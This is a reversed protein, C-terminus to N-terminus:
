ERFQYSFIILNKGPLCYDCQGNPVNSINQMFIQSEWPDCITNTDAESPFYWPMCPTTMNLLTATANRAFRLSCELVCNSRSYTKHTKVMETEDKFYCNRDVPKLSRIDEQASVKTASLGVQLSWYSQNILFLNQKFLQALNGCPKVIIKRSYLM